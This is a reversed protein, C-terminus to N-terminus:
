LWLLDYIYSQELDLKGHVPLATVEITKNLVDRLPTDNSDVDRFM